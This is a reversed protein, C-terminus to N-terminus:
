HSLHLSTHMTYVPLISILAVRRVGLFLEISRVGVGVTITEFMYVTATDTLALKSSCPGFRSDAGKICYSGM